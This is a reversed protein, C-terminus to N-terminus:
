RRAPDKHGGEPDAVGATLSLVPSLGRVGEELRVVPVRKSLVSLAAVSDYHGKWPEQDECTKGTLSGPFWSGQQSGPNRSTEWGAVRLYVHALDPEHADGIDILHHVTKLAYEAMGDNPRFSTSHRIVVSRRESSGVRFRHSLPWRRM